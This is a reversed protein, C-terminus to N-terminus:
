NLFIARISEVLSAANMDTSNREFDALKLEIQARSLQSSEGSTQMPPKTMPAPLSIGSMAHFESRAVLYPHGDPLKFNVPNM